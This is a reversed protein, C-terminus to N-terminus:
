AHGIEEANVASGAFGAAKQAIFVENNRGSNGPRTIRNPDPKFLTPISQECRNGLRTIGRSNL